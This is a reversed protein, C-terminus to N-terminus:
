TSWGRYADLLNEWVLERSFERLVRQRALAGHERRLTASSAYRQLAIALADADHPPVLLGTEGDVVADVCGTVKSAVVPLGMSAAELAVNPFGERYTPLALVDMAAYIAPTDERFGVTAVRPDAQLAELVEPPVPDRPEPGGVLLLRASPLSTKLTDWAGALEVIGKDRVLRGVFGIVFADEDIGLESRIRRRAGPDREPDFRTRAEVGQGSGSGLVEISDPACIREAIAVTRLSSSVCLVHHALACSVRETTRLLERRWGTATALPLGRMHYVCTPVGALRGAITGLLGGKPTSAHVIDPRSERLELVLHTLARLDALPTIRREMPVARCEVGEDRAFADLRSGPASIVRLEWGHDRLFAGQGRLFILSDPVTTVHVVRPVAVASAQM